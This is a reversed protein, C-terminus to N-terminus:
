VGPGFDGFLAQMAQWEAIRCGDTLSFVKDVPKGNLTGTVRAQQPGGYQQTCARNPNPPAFFVADGSKALAACAAEPNSVTSKATPRSDVCVLVQEQSGAVGQTSMVIKLSADTVAAGKTPGPSSPPTAPPPTGPAPQTAPPPTTASPSPAPGGPGGCGALLLAIGAAAAAAKPLVRLFTHHRCQTMTM